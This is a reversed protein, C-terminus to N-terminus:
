VVACKLTQDGAGAREALEKAKALLAQWDYKDFNLKEVLVACRRYVRSMQNPESEELEVALRLASEIDHEVDRTKNFRWYGEARAVLLLAKTHPSIQEDRLGYGCCNLAKEWKLRARLISQRVDCMDADMCGYGGALRLAKNSLPLMRWWCWFGLWGWTLLWPILRLPALWGDSKISFLQAIATTFISYYTSSLASYEWSLRHETNGKPFMKIEFEKDRFEKRARRFLELKARFDGRGWSLNQITDISIM